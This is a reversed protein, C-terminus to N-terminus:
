KSIYKKGNKILLGKASANVRQGQMNYIANSDVPAVEIDRIANTDDWIFSFGKAGSSKEESVKLIAKGEAAVDFAAGDAAGWYFGLGSKENTNNYTMRYYKCGVEGDTSAVFPTAVLNNDADKTVSTSINTVTVNPTTSCILVGEGKAVQGETRETKLLQGDLVAVTSVEVINEEDVTIKVNSNNNSYTGYYLEGSVGPLTISTRVPETYVINFSKGGTTEGITASFVEAGNIPTITVTMGSATATANTWTSNAMVTAYRVTTAEYVVFDITNGNMPTFSLTNDTYFRTSTYTKGSTGPYYNNAATTGKKVTSITVVDNVWTMQETTATTTENKTLDITKSLIVNVNFEVSSEKYESNGAYEAKVTADGGALATIVNGEISIVSEGSIVTYTLEADAPTTTATITMTQGKEMEMDSISISSAKKNVTVQYNAAASSVENFTAVVEVDINGDATFTAPNIQYDAVSTVDATSADSYTATVTLGYTDFSDGVYYETKTPTGSIAITSLSASTTVTVEFTTTATRYGDASITATVTANGVGVAKLVGDKYEVVSNNGSEYSITYSGVINTVVEPTITEGNKVSVNSISLDTKRILSVIYNGATFEYTSQYKDLTGYGIVEDGVAPCESASSYKGNNEAKYNKYFEFQDGSTTGDESVYFSLFGNSSTWANAISSVIGKVYVPTKLGKGSDYLNKVETATYATEQTNAITQVTAGKEVTVGGYSISITQSGSKSMDYGSYSCEGSVDDDSSGDTYTAKVTIGTSNFDDGQWLDSFDGTVELSSATKQVKTTLKVDDINRVATSGTYYIRVYVNSYSSLDQSVEVWTGKSMSTASQTKVDKWTSNNSSVQIKWSSSTSNTTQRSVYFTISNPSEIATKTTISATAKGGTTGYYTGGKATISGTQKSTMNTFIWDTYSSAASEFDISYTEAMVTGGGIVLLLCTVLFTQLISLQKKM